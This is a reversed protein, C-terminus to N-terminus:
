PRATDSSEGFVNPEAVLATIGAEHRESGPLVNPMHRGHRHRVKRVPEGVATTSLAALEDDPEIRHDLLQRVSRASASSAPSAAGRHERPEAAPDDIRHRRM